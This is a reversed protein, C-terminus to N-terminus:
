NFQDFELKSMNDPSAKLYVLRVYKYKKIQM